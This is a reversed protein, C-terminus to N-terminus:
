LFNKSLGVNEGITRWEFSREANVIKQEM